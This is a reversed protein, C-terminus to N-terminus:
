SFKFIVQLEAKSPRGRKRPTIEVPTPTDIEETELADEEAAEEQEGEEMQLFIQAANEGDETILQLQIQQEPQQQGHKDIQQTDMLEEVMEEEGEGDQQIVQCVYFLSVVKQYVYIIVM